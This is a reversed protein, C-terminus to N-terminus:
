HILGRGSPLLQDAAGVSVLRTVYKFNLSIEKPKYCFSENM